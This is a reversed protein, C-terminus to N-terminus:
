ASEQNMDATDLYAILAREVLSSLSSSEDIARHKTRRVLESPLYVNFQVKEM